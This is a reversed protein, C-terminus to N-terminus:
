ALALAAKAVAMVNTRAATLEEEHRSYNVVVHAAGRRAVVWVDVRNQNGEVTYGCAQEGVGALEDASLWM